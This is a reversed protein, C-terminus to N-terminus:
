GGIRAVIPMDGIQSCTLNAVTAALDSCKVLQAGGALDVGNCDKLKPILTPVGDVSLITNTPTDSITVTAGSASKPIVTAVGDVTLIVSDNTETVSVSSGSSCCSTIM